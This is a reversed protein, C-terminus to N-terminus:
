KAARVWFALIQRERHNRHDIYEQIREHIGSLPGHRPMVKLNLSAGENLSRMYDFLDRM